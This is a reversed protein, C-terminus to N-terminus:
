NVCTLIRNRKMDNYAMATTMVISTKPNKSEQICCLLLYNLKEWASEYSKGNKLPSEIYLIYQPLYLM